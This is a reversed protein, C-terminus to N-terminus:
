GPRNKNTAGSRAVEKSLRFERQMRTVVVAVAQAAKERDSRGFKIGKLTWNVDFQSKPEAHEVIVDVFVECDPDSRKVADTIAAQLDARSVAQRDDVSKGIWLM